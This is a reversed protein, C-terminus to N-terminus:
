EGRLASKYAMRVSDGTKITIRANGIIRRIQVPHRHYRLALEELNNGTFADCIQQNRVMRSIAPLDPFTLRFGGIEESMMTVMKEADAAGLERVMRAFMRELAEASGRKM